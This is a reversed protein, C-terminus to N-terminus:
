TSVGMAVGWASGTAQSVLWYLRIQLLHSAELEEFKKTMGGGTDGAPGGTDLVRGGRFPFARGLRAISLPRRVEHEATSTGSTVGRGRRRQDTEERRLRSISFTLGTDLLTMIRASITGSHEEGLRSGSGELGRGVLPGLSGVGPM